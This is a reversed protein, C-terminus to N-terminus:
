LVTTHEAAVKEFRARDPRIREVWECVPRVWILSQHFSSGCEKQYIVGPQQTGEIIAIGIIRYLSESDSYHSYL